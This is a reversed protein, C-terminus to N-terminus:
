KKECISIIKYLTNTSIVKPEGTNYDKGIHEHYIIEYEIALKISREPIHFTFIDICTSEKEVSPEMFAYCNLISNRLFQKMATNGFFESHVDNVLNKTFEELSM